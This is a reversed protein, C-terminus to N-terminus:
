HYRLRSIPARSRANPRTLNTGPYYHRIIDAVDHGADARAIAGTQCLGIGHGFGQGDFIFRGDRRRVEFRTSRISRAGLHSTLAARLREGRVVTAREGVLRIWLARGAADREVVVVRDLRAGVSTALAQNLAHRLKDTEIEFRWRMDDERVCYSDPEGRLYSPTAGGWAASANSTHGGCHAHFLANIPRGAHTIVVGATRRAADAALRAAAEPWQGIPRYVQCHTTACLDFGETAHRRRNAVAYTRSVVAQLEAVRSATEASLGQLPLEALLAGEVYRELSIDRVPAGAEGLRVRVTGAGADRSVIAPVPRRVCSSVALALATVIVGFALRRRTPSVCM